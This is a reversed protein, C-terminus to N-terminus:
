KLLDENIDLEEAIAKRNKEAEKDPTNVPKVRKGMTTTNGFRQVKKEKSAIMKKPIAVVYYYYDDDEFQVRETRAYDLNMMFFQIVFCLLVSVVGGVIVGLTKGQIGILTFGVLLGIIQIIGGALIAITWSHEIPMSRVFYVVLSTVVFILIVLIMEKNDKLQGIIINLKSLTDSEEGNTSTLISANLRVGDVFYYLITGCVVALVSQASRLLGSAMPMVYQVNYRFLVPTLVASIGDKPSFRFYLLYLILLLFLSVLAAEMALAYMNLVVFLGGILITANIPLVSCVLALILAVPTSSIKTMYGINANMTLFMCFAICFKVVIIIYTEFRGYFRILKDKMELLQTM